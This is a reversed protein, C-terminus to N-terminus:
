RFCRKKQEASMRFMGINWVSEKSVEEVLLRWVFNCIGMGLDRVLNNDEIPYAYCKSSSVLIYQRNLLMVIVFVPALTDTQLLSGIM